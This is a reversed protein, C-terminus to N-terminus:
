RAGQYPRGPKRGEPNWLFRIVIEDTLSAVHPMMKSQVMEILYAVNSLEYPSSAIQWVGKGRVPYVFGADSARSADLQPMVSVWWGAGLKGSLEKLFKSAYDLAEEAGMPDPVM